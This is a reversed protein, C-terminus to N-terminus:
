IYTQPIKCTKKWNEVRKRQCLNLDCQKRNLLVIVINFKWANLTITLFILQKKNNNNNLMRNIPQIYLIYKLHYMDSKIDPKSVWFDIDYTDCVRSKDYFCMCYHLKMCYPWIIVSKSLIEWRIPAKLLDDDQLFRFHRSLIFTQLIWNSNDRYKYSAKCKNYANWRDNM